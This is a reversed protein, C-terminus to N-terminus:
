YKPGDLRISPSVLVSPRKAKDRKKPWERPILTVGAVRKIAHLFYLGGMFPWWRPGAKELFAFRRRLSVKNVPPIYLEMKGVVVHYDLLRLWDRLKALAIFEGNWPPPTDGTRKKLVNQLGWLSWQNFVSMLLHGEPRLVRTTEKLVLKPNSSFELVHPMVVLDITENQIPLYGFNCCVDTGVEPGIVTHSPIRNKGMFDFDGLGLQVANYGFVDAVEKDFFSRERILVESGLPSKLWQGFNKVFIM